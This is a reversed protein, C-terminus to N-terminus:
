PYIDLYTVTSARVHGNFEGLAPGTLGIRATFVTFGPTANLFGGAAIDNKEDRVTVTSEISPLEDIIYFPIAAQKSEEFHIGGVSTRSCDFAELIVLGRNAMVAHGAIAALLELTAPAVAALHKAVRPETLPRTFYWLAPLMDPPMDPGPIESTVELFGNFEYPLDLKIVGTNGTDEFSAVPNACSVDNVECALAKLGRPVKDSVFELVPMEFPVTASQMPMTPDCMFREVDRTLGCQKKFCRESADCDSDRNCTGDPPKMTMGGADSGADVMMMECDDGECKPPGADPKRVSSTKPAVCVGSECTGSLM